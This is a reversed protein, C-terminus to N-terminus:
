ALSSQGDMKHHPMELLISISAPADLHEPHISQHPTSRPAVFCGLWGEWRDVRPREKKEGNTWGGMMEPNSAWTSHM